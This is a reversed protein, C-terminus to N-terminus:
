RKPKLVGAQQLFDIQGYQDVEIRVTTSYARPEIVTLTIATREYVERYIHAVHLGASIDDAFGDGWQIRGRWDEMGNLTAPADFVYEYGVWLRIVTSFLVAEVAYRAALTDGEPAIPAVFEPLEEIITTLRLEDFTRRVHAPLAEVQADGDATQLVAEMVANKAKCYMRLALRYSTGDTDTMLVSEFEPAASVAARWKYFQSKAVAETKWPSRPPKVAWSYDSESRWRELVQYTDVLEALPVAYRPVGYREVNRAMGELM